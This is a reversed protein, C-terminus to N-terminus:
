SQTPKVWWLPGLDSDYQGWRRVLLAASRYTIQLEKQFQKMLRKRFRHPAINAPTKSDLDDALYSALLWKHLPIHSREFITQSRVTFKWRCLECHYWGEGM